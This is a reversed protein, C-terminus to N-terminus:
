INMVEVRGWLAADFDVKAPQTLSTIELLPAEPWAARGWEALDTAAEVAKARPIGNIEIDRATAQFFAEVNVL